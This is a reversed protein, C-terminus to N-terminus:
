MGSNNSNYTISLKDYIFEKQSHLPKQIFGVTSIAANIKREGNNTLLKYLEKNSNEDRLSLAMAIVPSINDSELGNAIKDVAKLDESLYYSRYAIIAVSAHSKVCLKEQEKQSIIGKEPNYLFMEPIESPAELQYQSDFFTNLVYKLAEKSNKKGGAILYKWLNDAFNADTTTLQLLEVDPKDYGPLFIVPIGYEEYLESFADCLYENYTKGGLLRL